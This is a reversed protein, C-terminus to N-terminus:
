GFEESIAVLSVWDLDVSVSLDPFRTPNLIGFAVYDTKPTTTVDRLDEHDVGFQPRDAIHRLWFCHRRVRSWFREYRTTGHLFGAHVLLFLADCHELAALAFELSITKRPKSYPPNSFCVTFANEKAWRGVQSQVKPALFDGFTVESELLLSARSELDGRFREDIEAALLRQYPTTLGAKEFASTAASVIAGYGAAPELLGWPPAPVPSRFRGARVLGDHDVWLSSRALIGSRLAETGVAVFWRALAPETWWQDLSRDQVVSSVAEERRVPGLSFAM